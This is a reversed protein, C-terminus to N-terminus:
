IELRQITKLLSNAEKMMRIHEKRVEELKEQINNVSKEIGSPMGMKAMNEETVHKEKLLFSKKKGRCRKGPYSVQIRVKVVPEEGSREKAEKVMVELEKKKKAILEDLRAMEWKRRLDSERMELKEKMRRKALRGIQCRRQMAERVVEMKFKFVGDFRRLEDRKKRRGSGPGADQVTM